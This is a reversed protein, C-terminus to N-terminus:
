FPFMWEMLIFMLNKGVLAVWLQIFLKVSLFDLDKKPYLLPQLFLELSLYQAKDLFLPSCFNQVSSTRNM